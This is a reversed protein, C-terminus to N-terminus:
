GNSIAESCSWSSPATSYPTQNVIPSIRRLLRLGVPLCRSWSVIGAAFAGCVATASSVSTRM